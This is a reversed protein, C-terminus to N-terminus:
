LRKSLDLGLNKVEIRPQFGPNNPFQNGMLWPKKWKLSEEEEKMNGTLGKPPLETSTLGLNQVWFGGVKQGSEL